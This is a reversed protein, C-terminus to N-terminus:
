WLMVLVDDRHDAFLLKVRIRYRQDRVLITQVMANKDLGSDDDEVMKEWGSDTEQSVDIITDAQGGPSFTQVNYTRTLTPTFLYNKQQGVDIGLKVSVGLFLEEEPPADGYWHRVLEIDRPSLGGNPILPKTRYEPPVNILGAPFAYHMISDKDWDSGDVDQPNIKRIINFETLERSWRNPPQAFYAIVASENWQIGAKPNQHEHPFGLTHGIEHLAIDLGRAGALDPDQPDLNLTRERASFGLVERGIYSWHGDGSLFGIRIQAQRPDTVEGFEIELGLDKWKAFAKKVLRRQDDTAAWPPSDAGFIYYTLKEDKRWRSGNALILAQRIPTVAPAFVRPPTKPVACYVKNGAGAAAADSTKAKKAM